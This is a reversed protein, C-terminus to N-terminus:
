QQVKQRPSPRVQIRFLFLLGDQYSHHHKLKQIQRNIELSICFAVKMGLM